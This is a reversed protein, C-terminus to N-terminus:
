DTKNENFQPNGKRGRRQAQRCTQNSCKPRSSLGGGAHLVQPLARSRHQLCCRTGCSPRSAENWARSQSGACATPPRHAWGATPRTCPSRRPEWPAARLSNTRCAAATADTALPLMWRLLLEQAASSMCAVGVLHNHYHRM